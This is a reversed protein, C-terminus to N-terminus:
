ANVTNRVKSIVEVKKQDGKITWTLVDEEFWGLM